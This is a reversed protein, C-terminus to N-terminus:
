ILGRKLDRIIESIQKKESFTLDSKESKLYATLMWICEDEDQWYYIVRAGGRKGKNKLPMRIKRAGNTGKVIKGKQPNELIELQLLFLEEDSSIKQIENSFHRLERFEM